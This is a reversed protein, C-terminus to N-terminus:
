IPHGAAWPQSPLSGHHPQLVGSLSPSSASQFGCGRDPGLLSHTTSSVCAGPRQTAPGTSHCPGRLTTNPPMNWKLVGFTRKLLTISNNWKLLHPKRNPFRWGIQLNVLVNKEAREGKSRKMLPKDSCLPLFFKFSRKKKDDNRIRPKRFSHFNHSFNSKQIIWPYLIHM